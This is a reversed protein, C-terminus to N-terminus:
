ASRVVRKIGDRLQPSKFNMLLGVRHGAAILHALLQASHIPLILDLTKVDVVLGKAIVFALSTEGVPQGKYTVTVPVNREFAIGRSTLEIALAQAYVPDAFGPGLSKHVEIAAGITAHILEDLGDGLQDALPAPKRTDLSSM